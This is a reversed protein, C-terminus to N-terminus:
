VRYDYPQQEKKASDKWVFSNHWSAVAKKLKTHSIRALRDPPCNFRRAFDKVTHIYSRITEESYNRRQLEELMMKRLHTM